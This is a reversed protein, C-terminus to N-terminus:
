LGMSQAVLNTLTETAAAYQGGVCAHKLGDLTSGTINSYAIAADLLADFAAWESKAIKPLSPAGMANLVALLAMQKFKGTGLIRAKAMLSEMSLVGEGTYGAPAAVPQVVVEIADDPQAIPAAVVIEAEDPLEISAPATVEVARAPPVETPIVATTPTGTNAPMTKPPRGRKRAIPTVSPDETAATEPAAPAAPAEPAAPAPQGVVNSLNAPHFMSSVFALEELTMDSIQLSFRAM